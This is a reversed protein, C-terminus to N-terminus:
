DAPPKRSFRRGIIVGALGMALLTFTGPEPLVTGAAAHASEVSALSAAIALLCQTTRRL